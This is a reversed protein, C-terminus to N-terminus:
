AHSECTHPMRLPKHQVCMQLELRQRKWAHVSLFSLQQLLALAAMHLTTCSFSSAHCKRASAIGLYHWAHGCPCTDASAASSAPHMAPPEGLLKTATYSPAMM